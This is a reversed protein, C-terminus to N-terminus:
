ARRRPVPYFEDEDELVVRKKLKKKPKPREPEEDEVVTFGADAAPPKVKPKAVVPEDDEIVEFGPDPTPLTFAVHCKPCKVTKGALRDPATVRASCSPCAVALPM